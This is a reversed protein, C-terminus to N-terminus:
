SDVLKKWQSTHSMFILKKWRITTFHCCIAARAHETIGTSDTSYLIFNSYLITDGRDSELEVGRNTFLGSFRVFAYSM